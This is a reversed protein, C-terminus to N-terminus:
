SNKKLFFKERISLSELGKETIKDLISDITFNDEIKDNIPASSKISLLKDECFKSMEVETSGKKMVAFLEGTLKDVFLKKVNVNASPVPVLMAGVLMFGPWVTLINTVWPVAPVPVTVNGEKTFCGLPEAYVPVAKAFAMSMTVIIANSEVM